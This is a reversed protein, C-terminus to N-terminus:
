NKVIRFVSQEQEVKVHLLYIGKSEIIDLQTQNINEFSWTQILQGQINTLNLTVNHQKKGLSITLKGSTPNPFISVDTFLNNEVFGVGSITVCASTDTCGNETVKVAYQGNKNPSFTQGNEGALVSYGLSDCGLWQYLANSLVAKLLLSSDLVSVNVSHVYLNTEITSDCLGSTSLFSTHTISTTSVSGDPFIFTDGKCVQVSDSLQYTPLIYLNTIIVSDCGDFTEMCSTDITSISSSDGDPFIYTSGDCISTTDDILYMEVCPSFKAFFPNNQNSNPLFFTDCGPDFDPRGKYGGTLYVNDSADLIVDNASEFHIDGFARTWLHDGFSDFNSFFVDGLGNSLYSHNNSTPDLNITGFFYGTLYVNATDQAFVGYGVATGTNKAWLYDGSNTYKAIFGDGPTGAGFLSAISIGPDFDVQDKFLGTLYINSMADLSMDYAEEFMSGGIKKAWQYIGSSDYKAIFIDSSGGTSYLFSSGVPNFNVTDRFRGTVLVDGNNDIKIDGGYDSDTGGVKFAWIFNGTSDYKAVFIDEPVGQSQLTSIGNGPNFDVLGKFSGTVYVNGNIDTDVSNCQDRSISGLSFGWIFVGNKDYKSIFADKNGNSYQIANSSGTDLLIYNLYEGVIYINDNQDVTIKPSYNPGDCHLSRSWLYNGDNDYKALFISTITGMYHVGPGPDFDMTDEYYGAIIINDSNDLYISYGNGPSTGSLVNAWEFKQAYLTGFVISLILFFNFKM